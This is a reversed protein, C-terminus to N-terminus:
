CWAGTSTIRKQTCYFIVPVKKHRKTFATPIHKISYQTWKSRAPPQLNLQGPPNLRRFSWVPVGPDSRKHKSVFVLMEKTFERYRPVLARFWKEDSMIWLIKITASLYWRHDVVRVSFNVQKVKNMETLGPKINKKYVEFTPHSNLWREITRPSFWGDVCQSLQRYSRCM